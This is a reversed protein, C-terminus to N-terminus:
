DNSFFTKFVSNHPDYTATKAANKYGYIITILSLLLTEM